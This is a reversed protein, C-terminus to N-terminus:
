FKLVKPPNGTLMPIGPFFKSTSSDYGNPATPTMSPVGSQEKIMLHYQDDLLKNFVMIQNKLMLRVYYAKFFERNEEELKQWVTSLFLSFSLALDDM